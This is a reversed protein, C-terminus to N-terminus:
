LQVHRGTSHRVSERSVMCWVIYSRGTTVVHHNHHNHICLFFILVPATDFFAMEDASWADLERSYIKQTKEDTVDARGTVGFESNSVNSETSTSIKDQKSITQGHKHVHEQADAAAAAAVDLPFYTASATRNGLTPARRM